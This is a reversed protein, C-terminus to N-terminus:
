PGSLKIQFDGKTSYAYSFYDRQDNKILEEFIEFCLPEDSGYNERLM